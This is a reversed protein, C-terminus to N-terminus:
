FILSSCVEIYSMLDNLRDSSPSVHPVLRKKMAMANMGSFNGMNRESFSKLLSRPSKPTMKDKEPSGDKRFLFHYFNKM